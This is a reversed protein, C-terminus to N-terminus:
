LGLSAKLKEVSDFPGKYAGAEYEKRSAALRARTKANPTRPVSFMVQQESAFKRLYANLITSLPIGIADAAKQAQAKVAKDTKILITTKTNM